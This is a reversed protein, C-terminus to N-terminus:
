SHIALWCPINAELYEFPNRSQSLDTNVSVLVGEMAENGRVEREQLPHVRALGCLELQLSSM